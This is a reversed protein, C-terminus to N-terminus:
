SLKVAKMNNKEIKDREPNNWMWPRYEMKKLITELKIPKVLKLFREKSKGEWIINIM